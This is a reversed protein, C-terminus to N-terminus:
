QDSSESKSKSAAEKWEVLGYEFVVHVPLVGCASLYFRHGALWLITM